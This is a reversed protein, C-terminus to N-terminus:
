KDKKEMEFVGKKDKKPKLKVSATEQRTGLLGADYGYSALEKKSIELPEGALIKGNYVMILIFNDKCGKCQSVPIMDKAVEDKPDQIMDDQEFWEELEELIIESAEELEEDKVSKNPLKEFDEVWALHLEKIEEPLQEVTIEREDLWKQHPYKRPRGTAM